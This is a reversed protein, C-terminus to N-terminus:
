KNKIMRKFEEYNLYGDKDIDCEKFMQLIEEEKISEDIKTFISLVNKTSILKTNDKDFIKFVEYLESETDNVEQCKAIIELFAESDITGNENIDVDNLYDQLEAETSEYGCKKMLAQLEQYSILGDKDKDYKQFLLKYQYAGDDNEETEEM